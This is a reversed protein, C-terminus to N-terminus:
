HKIGLVKAVGHSIDSLDTDSIQGILRILRSKDVNRIQESRAKSGTGASPVNVVLPFHVPEPTSTLPVIVVTNRRRNIENASLVVCPRTKAIEAGRVPDLAVWYVQGRQINANM